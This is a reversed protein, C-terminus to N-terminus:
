ESNLKELKKEFMANQEDFKNTFTELEDFLSDITMRCSHISRSLEAIKSGDQQQSAKLMAENLKNLKKEHLDINNEIRVIRQKLPKVAKGREFNIESRKRRLEKKNLKSYPKKEGSNKGAVGESENEWGVEELFRQYSGDFVYTSDEQFVILRQALAHLFMENHTVMVVTGEFNDIAALLADSSEMDLHNTPEDLLLLNVPTVLLKGLMVRSKEGGSLVSIKKLADDGGFMMAGCVNRALQRDVHSDSYLIEEEVTRTDVLTKVNTQEFFGIKVNPNYTIQGKQPDLEGALLKLLTTKGKGNKGVVCVRDGAGITVDFNKIVPMTKEYSFSLKQTNLIQKGAFTHYRFSFGLTKIKELKEQKEKKALTKIRSQVMNALRAKARFRTIFLKIEKQRREDKIRTKEHIEEEQAIQSYYKGTNGAIKRIKKRNIGIIHTVLKDMFSRNHTILLVEHPWNLLFREIWRISTIDLYNTPEDLLLLDPDSALAKALNLRVQFGGSFESPHRKFDEKSFGLGALIKEVKWYHDREEEGLGTMCEKLATDRTFNLEQRVYSIRYNKPISISGSDPLEDGAILKFLTTKGHGNRGVLGSREKSNLRFSIDEFLTHGGFSKTLNEANIM